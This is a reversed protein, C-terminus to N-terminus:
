AVNLLTTGGLPTVTEILKGLKEHSRAAEFICRSCIHWLCPEFTSRIFEPLSGARYRSVGDRFKKVSNQCTSRGEHQWARVHKENAHARTWPASKRIINDKTSGCVRLRRSRWAALMFISNVGRCTTTLFVINTFVETTALSSTAFNM